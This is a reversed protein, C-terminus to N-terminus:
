CCKNKCVVVRPCLGLGISSKTSICTRLSCRRFPTYCNTLLQAWCKTTCENLWKRKYNIIKKFKIDWKKNRPSIYCLWNFFLYLSSGKVLGSKSGSKHISAPDNPPGLLFWIYMSELVIISFKYVTLLTEVMPLECDIGLV